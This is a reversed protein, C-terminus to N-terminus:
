ADIICDPSPGVSHHHDVIDGKDSFGDMHVFLADELDVELLLHKHLFQVFKSSSFM